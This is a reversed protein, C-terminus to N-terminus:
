QLRTGPIANPTSLLLDPATSLRPKIVCTTISPPPKAQSAQARLSALAIDYPDREDVLVVIVLKLAKQALHRWGLQIGAIHRIGGNPFAVAVLSVEQRRCDCDCKKPVTACSM